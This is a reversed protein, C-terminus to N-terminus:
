KQGTVEGFCKLCMGDLMDAYDEEINGLFLGCETCSMYIPHLWEAPNHYDDQRYDTDLVAPCDRGSGIQMTWLKKHRTGRLAKEVVSNHMQWLEESHADSTKRCFTCKSIQKHMEWLKKSHKKSDIHCVTCLSMSKGPKM